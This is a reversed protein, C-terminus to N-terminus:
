PIEDPFNLRADPGLLEIAARDYARAAAVEDAFGGLSKQKGAVRIVAGIKAKIEPRQSVERANAAIKAHFEPDTLHEQYSALCRARFDPDTFLRRGQEVLRERAKGSAFQRQANERLKQRTEESRVRGTNAAAMRERHVPDKWQKQAMERMRRREDPDKARQIATLRARARIAPTRTYSEEGGSTKNTLTSLDFQAILTQEYALAEREIETTFMIYRQVVGGSKWIKRIVNCKHCRHGSRAEREHARVRNGKGKGVYFPSGDPRALVYVYYGPSPPLSPM